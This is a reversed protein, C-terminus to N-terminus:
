EESSNLENNSKQYKIYNLIGNAIGDAIKQKGENSTLVTVDEKNSLFGLEILTAPVSVANLVALYGDSEYKVARKETYNVKGLESLVEKALEESPTNKVRCWTEVGKVSFDELYNCHISIFLDAGIDNAVKARAELNKQESSPWTINDDVRTYEVKINNKELVRGVRLSIDLVIDKEISGSNSVAGGDFGGHGPDIVVTKRKGLEKNEMKSKSNLNDFRPVISKDSGEKIEIERLSQNLEKDEIKSNIKIISFGLIFIVITLICYIYRKNRKIDIRRKKNKKDM